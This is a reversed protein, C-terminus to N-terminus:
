LPINGQNPVPQGSDSNLDDLFELVKEKHNKLNFEEEIEEETIVKEGGRAGFDISQNPRGKKATTRDMDRQQTEQQIPGKKATSNLNKDGAHYLPRDTEAKNPTEQDEQPKGHQAEHLAAEKAAAAARENKGQRARLFEIM